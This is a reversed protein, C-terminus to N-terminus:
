VSYITPLTLHTYSVSVDKFGEKRRLGYAAARAEAEGDHVTRRVLDTSPDRDLRVRALPCQELDVQWPQDSLQWGRGDGSPCNCTGADARHKHDLIFM